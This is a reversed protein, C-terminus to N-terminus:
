KKSQFIMGSYYYRDLINQINTADAKTKFPGLKVIYWVAHDRHIESMHAKTKGLKKVANIKQMYTMAQDVDRLSAMQLYYVTNDVKATKVSADASPNTNASKGNVPTTTTALNSLHVSKLSMKPLVKYFEFAPAEKTIMPKSATKPHHSPKLLEFFFAIVLIILVWVLWRTPNSQTPQARKAYRNYKQRKKM